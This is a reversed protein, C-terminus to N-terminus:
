SLKSLNNMDAMDALVKIIGIQAAAAADDATDDKKQEEPKVETITAPKTDKPGPSKPPAAKDEPKDAPKEDAKGDLLFPNSEDKMNKTFPNTGTMRAEIEDLYTDPTKEFPKPKETEKAQDQIMKRMRETVGSLYKNPANKDIPGTLKKADSLM